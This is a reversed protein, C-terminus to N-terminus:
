EELEQYERMQLGLDQLCLYEDELRSASCRVALWLKEPFGKHEMLSSQLALNHSSERIEEAHSLLSRRHAVREELCPEKM